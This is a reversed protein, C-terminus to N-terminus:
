LKQGVEHGRSHLPSIKRKMEKVIIRLVKQLPSSLFARLSSKPSELLAGCVTPLESLYTIKIM